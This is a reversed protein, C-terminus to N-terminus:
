LVDPIIPTIVAGLNNYGTVLWTDTAVYTCRLHTNAPVAAENTAGVVVNNVKHSAVASILECGNAGVFIDLIKGVTAAPLSIQKDASDSTAIVFSAESDILGTTGGGTTATVAEAAPAYVKQGMAMLTDREERSRFGDKFFIRQLASLASM